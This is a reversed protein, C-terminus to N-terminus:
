WRTASVLASQDAAIHKRCLETHAPAGAGLAAELARADLPITGNCNCLKLTKDQLAM